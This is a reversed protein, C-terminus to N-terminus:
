NITADIVRLLEEEPLTYSLLMFASNEYEFYIFRSGNSYKYVDLTLDHLSLTEKADYEEDLVFTASDTILNQAWILVQGKDDHYVMNLSIDSLNEDLLTYGEPIYQPKLPHFVLKQGNTDYTYTSYDNEKVTVNRYYALYIAKGTVYFGLSTIILLLIMAIPKALPFSGMISEYQILWKMKRTFKQSFVHPPNNRTELKQIIAADVIPMYKYLAEDTLIKTEM